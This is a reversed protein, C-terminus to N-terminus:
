FWTGLEQDAEAVLYNNRSMSKVPLSFVWLIMASNLNSFAVLIMEDVWGGMVVMGVLWTEWYWTEGVQCLKGMFSRLYHLWNVDEDEKQHTKLIVQPARIDLRQIMKAIRKQAKQMKLIWKLSKASKTHYVTPPSDYM